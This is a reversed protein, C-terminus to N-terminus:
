ATEGPTLDTCVDEVCLTNRTHYQNYKLLTPVVGEEFQKPTCTMLSCDRERSRGRVYLTSCDVQPEESSELRMPLGIPVSTNFLRGRVTQETIYFDICRDRKKYAIRLRLIPTLEGM